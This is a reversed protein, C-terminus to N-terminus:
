ALLQRFAARYRQGIVSWDAIEAVRHRARLGMAGLDPRDAATYRGLLAPMEEIGSVLFERGPELGIGRAGFPSSLVALGAAAYEFMKINTGSGLEMPNLGIDAMSFVMWKASEDLEGLCRINAAKLDALAPHNCVTGLIVFVVHPLEAAMEIIREVARFNPHHFSGGFVAVLRDAVGLRARLQAIVDDPVNPVGIGDVGNEILVIRDPDVGYEAAFAEADSPSCAMTLQSQEIAMREIDRIVALYDPFDKLVPTKQRVEVNQSDFVVPIDRSQLASRIAAISYPHATVAADARALRAGLEEQYGRCEDWFRAYALDAAMRVERDLRTELARFRPEVAVRTERFSRGFEITRTAGAREPVVLEVDFEKSLERALFYIRRQGGGVAPWVPYFNAIVIRKM